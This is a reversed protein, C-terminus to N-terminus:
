DTEPPKRRVKLASTETRERDAALAAISNAFYEQIRFPKEGKAPKKMEWTGDALLEWARTNDRFYADLSRTIRRKHEPDAIPFLLEVRRDLNRTMWDASSLYVERNGGNNYIFARTHELFGDIVSIVRINESLGKVGPRLCCIGRVNLDVRVGASSAEYLADIIEPDVLSNMKATIRAEEGERARETERGILRLTERRIGFPAMFLTKLHPESSYGTVANFVLAVDRTYKERSTMLGMDTYLKATSDNYNGTGLHVYRRIGEDERRVVMLAKAHVKLIALGFIVIAGAKELRSAWAINAGEDFRAKLEVLVTVQIGREAAKILAKVIPSDGSTRYLTMKIAMVAPDEAAEEVMRIVPSYSEYPHHLLVDRDKLKEWLNDEDTLDEAPKPKPVPSRLADFGPLSTLAFFAKVDLPGEIRFHNAKPIGLTERIREALAADGKSMIRVPFSRKRSELIEKMAAIFDEDREEDVTMDADRTVRFLCSSEIRRGPFYREARSLLIDELLIIGLRGDEMRLKRFRNLIKPVRVIALDGGDLSFAAYIRTQAVLEDLDRGETLAIPTSTPFLEHEFVRDAKINEDRGWQEPPLLVLGKEALSPIIDRIMTKDIRETVRRIADLLEKLVESPREEGPSYVTDGASADRMLRAVRVMFFEDYNSATIALFKLRDLLGLDERLGENMVRENFANWSLERQIYKSDKM